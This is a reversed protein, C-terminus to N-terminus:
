HCGGRFVSKSGRNARLAAYQRMLGGTETDPSDESSGRQAGAATQVMDDLLHEISIQHSLLNSCYASKVTRNMSADATKHRPCTGAKSFWNASTCARACHLSTGPQRQHASGGQREEVKMVPRYTHQSIVGRLIPLWCYQCTAHYISAVRPRTCLLVAETHATNISGDLPSLKGRKVGRQM